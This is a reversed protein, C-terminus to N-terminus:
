PQLRFAHRIGVRTGPRPSGIAALLTEPPGYFPDRFYRVEHAPMDIAPDASLVEQLLTTGAKEAGVSVFDIQPDTM